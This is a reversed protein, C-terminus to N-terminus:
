EDPCKQRPSPCFATRLGYHFYAVGNGHDISEDPLNGYRVGHLNHAYVGAIQGSRNVGDTNRHGYRYLPFYVFRIIIASDDLSVARLQYAHINVSLRLEYGSCCRRCFRFTPSYAHLDSVTIHRCYVLSDWIDTDPQLIVQPRKLKSIFFLIIPTKDELHNCM